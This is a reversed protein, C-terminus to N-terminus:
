RPPARDALDLAAPHEAARRAATRPPLAELTAPDEALLFSTSACSSRSPVPARPQSRARKQRLAQGNAGRAAVLRQGMSASRRPPRVPPPGLFRRVRRPRHRAVGELGQRRLRPGIGLRSKRRQHLALLGLMTQASRAGVQSRALARLARHLRARQRRRHTPAAEPVAVSSDACSTGYTGEALDDITAVYEAHASTWLAACYADFSLQAMEKQQVGCCPVETTSCIRRSALAAHAELVEGYCPRVLAATRYPDTREPPAM